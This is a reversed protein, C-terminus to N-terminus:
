RWQMERFREAVCVKIEGLNTEDVRQNRRVTDSGHVLQAIRDHISARTRHMKIEM